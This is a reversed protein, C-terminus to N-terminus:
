GLAALEARAQEARVDILVGYREGEAKRDEGLAGAQYRAHVGEIICATKWHNFAIYFPLASVDAGTAAAYQAVVEDRTPFGDLAQLTGPEGSWAAVVYGIDALPDGLTSIEWDLVARVPGDPAFRCNRFSFDGHVVCTPGGDPPLRKLLEAHVERVVPRDHTHMQEWQGFWRKIQRAVYGERKGLDGLGVADADVSHLAALADVFSEGARRRGAADLQRGGADDEMYIGDVHEMVYFTAGTVTHDECLGYVAPVPVATPGLADMVRHERAMDHASPIVSNVPPRRLVWRGGATDTVEYTLNSSGGLIPAFRYPGKGHVHADLWRTVNGVHVGLIEPV